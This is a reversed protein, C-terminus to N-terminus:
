LKVYDVKLNIKAGDPIKPVIISIYWDAMISCYEDVTCPDIIVTIQLKYETNSYKFLVTNISNTFVSSLGRVLLLTHDSFNIEHLTEGNMCTAYKKMDTINNVVTVGSDYYSINIWGCDFIPLSYETFPIETPENEKEKGCSIMMGALLLFIGALNLANLKKKM